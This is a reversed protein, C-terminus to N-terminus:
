QQASRLEALHRAHGDLAEQRSDYTELERVGAASITATGFLRAGPICRDVFGLYVTKLAMEGIEDHAITRDGQMLKGWEHLSIRNGDPDFYHHPQHVENKWDFPCHQRQGLTGIVRRYGCAEGEPGAPTYPHPEFPDTFNFKPM